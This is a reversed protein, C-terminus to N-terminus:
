NLQIQCLDQPIIKPKICNPTSSGHGCKQQPGVSLSTVTVGDTVHPNTINSIYDHQQPLEGNLLIPKKQWVSHPINIM